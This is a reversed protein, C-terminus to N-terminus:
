VALVISFESFHFHRDRSRNLRSFSREGHQRTSPVVRGLFASARGAPISLQSGEFSVTPPRVTSLSHRKPITRVAGVIGLMWREHTM